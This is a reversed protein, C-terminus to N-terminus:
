QHAWDFGLETVNGKLIEKPLTIELLAKTNTIKAKIRGDQKTNKTLLNKTWRDGLGVKSNMPGYTVPSGDVPIQVAQKGNVIRLSKVPAPHGAKKQFQFKVERPWQKGIRVLHGRGKAYPSNTILTASTSSQQIKGTDQHGRGRGQYSVEFPPPNRPTTFKNGKWEAYSPLGRYARGLVALNKQDGSLESIQPTFARDLPIIGHPAPPTAFGYLGINNAQADPVARSANAGNWLAMCTILKTKPGVMKEVKKIGSLSGAENMLWDAERYMPSNIVHPHDIKNVTVWIVCKPNAKKAAKRITAWCRDIAKRSYALDDQRSLNKEGPFTKGMLQKYLQKEAELWKGLTAKRNPMWVWDIMFGDIGTKSVADYISESLFKLYEDTYPLHYTSPTGYSLSPNEAGWRPNCAICFYGMVKMGKKHGLRVMEPLFDHKLGPQAPVTGNKYWAYGNTSVCFTQIM